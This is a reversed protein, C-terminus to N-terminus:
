LLWLPGLVLQGHISLGVLAVGRVCRLTSASQIWVLWREPCAPGCLHLLRLSGPGPCLLAFQRIPVWGEEWPAPVNQFWLSTTTVTSVALSNNM